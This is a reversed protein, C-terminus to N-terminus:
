SNRYSKPTNNTIKLFNRNFSRISSYGCTYAIDTITNQTNKLLYLAYNIRNENIFDVFSIGLINNLYKSLYTYSYGFQTSITKLSIDKTFNEQSYNLIKHLLEYDPKISDILKTNEMVESCLLYLCAKMELINCNDKFIKDLILTKATASLDFAPNELTKGDVMNHFTKVYEPPFVCINADSYEKTTISHVEYPFILISSGKEILFTRNNVFIEITGNTVYVFEFSRHLHKPYNLNNPHYYAFLNNEGFHYAEYKLM